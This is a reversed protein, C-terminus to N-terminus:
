ESIPRSRSGRPWFSALIPLLVTGIVVGAIAPDGLASWLWRFVAIGVSAALGAVVSIVAFRRAAGNGIRAGHYGRGKRM